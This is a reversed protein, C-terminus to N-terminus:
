KGNELTEGIYEWGDFFSPNWSCSLWGADLHLYKGFLPQSSNSPANVHCLWRLKLGQKYYGIRLVKPVQWCAKRWNNEDLWEESVEGTKAIAWDSGCSWTSHLNTTPKNTYEYVQGWADVAVWHGEEAGITIDSGPITFLVKM